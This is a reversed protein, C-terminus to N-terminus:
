CFVPPSSLFEIFHLEYEWIRRLNRDCDYAGEKLGALGEGNVLAQTCFKPILIAPHYSITLGRSETRKCLLGGTLESIINFKALIKM